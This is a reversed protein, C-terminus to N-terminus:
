TLIQFALIHVMGTTRRIMRLRLALDLTEVSRHLVHYLQLVVVSGLRQPQLDAFEDLVVVIPPYMLRQLVHRWSIYVVTSVM